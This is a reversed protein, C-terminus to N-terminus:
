LHQPLDNKLFNMSMNYPPSRHIRCRQGRYKVNYQYHKLSDDSNDLVDQHDVDLLQYVLNVLKLLVM